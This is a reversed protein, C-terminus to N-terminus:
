LVGIWSFAFEKSLRRRNYVVHMRYRVNGVPRYGDIAQVGSVPLM